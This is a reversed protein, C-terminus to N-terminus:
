ICNCHKIDDLWALYSAKSPLRHRPIITREARDDV